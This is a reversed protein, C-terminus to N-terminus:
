RKGILDFVPDMGNFGETYGAKSSDFDADSKWLDISAPNCNRIGAYDKETHCPELLTGVHYSQPKEAPYFAYFYNRSTSYKPLVKIYLPALEELKTPYAKNNNYYKELASKILNVNDVHFPATHDQALLENIKRPKPSTEGQEKQISQEQERKQFKQGAYFILGIIAIAALISIILLVNTQKTEM